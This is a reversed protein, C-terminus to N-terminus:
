TNDSNRGGQDYNSRKVVSQTKELQGLRERGTAVVMLVMQGNM